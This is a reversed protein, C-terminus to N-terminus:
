ARGGRMAGAARSNQKRGDALASKVGALAPMLRCRFLIRM